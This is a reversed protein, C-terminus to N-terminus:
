GSILHLDHGLVSAANRQLYASSKSPPFSFGDFHLSNRTVNSFALASLLGEAAQVLREFLRGFADGVGKVVFSSLEEGGDM